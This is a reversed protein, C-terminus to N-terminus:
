CEVYIRRATLKFYKYEFSICEIELSKSAVNLHIFINVSKTFLGVSLFTNASETISLIRTKLFFTESLTDILRIKYHMPFIM